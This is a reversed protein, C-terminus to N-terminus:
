VETVVSTPDTAGVVLETVNSTQGTGGVGVEPGGVGVETVVGTQDTGCM